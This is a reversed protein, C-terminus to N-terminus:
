LAEARSPVYYRRVTGGQTCKPRKPVNLMLVIATNNGCQLLNRIMDMELLRLFQIKVNFELLSLEQASRTLISIIM